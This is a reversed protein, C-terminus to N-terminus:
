RCWTLILRDWNEGKFMVDEEISYTNPILNRIINYEDEESKIFIFAVVDASLGNNIWEEKWGIEELQENTLYFHLEAM